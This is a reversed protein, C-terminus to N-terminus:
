TQVFLLIMWLFMARKEWMERLIDDMARRFIKSASTLSFPM